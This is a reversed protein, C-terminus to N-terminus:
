LAREMVINDVRVGNRLAAEKKRDVEMFGLKKYLEHAVTNHGLVELRAIRVHYRDKLFRLFARYASKALGRGRFRAHLDAGVYISGEAPDHNSLRFYGIRRGRHQVVYYDPKKERLWAQCEPLTFVRDDHLMGRCENRVELLFPLDDEDLHAFLFAPKSM